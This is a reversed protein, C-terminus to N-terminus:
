DLSARIVPSTTPHDTGGSPEATVMVASVGKINGPVDVNASGNTTPVFLADTRRTEAGRQLWVEYVQGSPPPAMGNVVLEAHSGRVQLEATTLADPSSAVAAQIVRTSTGSSGVGGLGIAGVAFGVALFATAGVVTLPRLLRGRAPKRWASAGARARRTSTSEFLRAEDYVTTLVRKRLSRPAAAPPAASPLMDAVVQLAAVEDRCVACSALHHRFPEVEFSELAGLVYAAADGTSCEVHGNM